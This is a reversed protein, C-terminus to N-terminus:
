TLTMQGFVYTAVAVVPAASVVAVLRRDEPLVLFLPVIIVLVLGFAIGGYVDGHLGPPSPCRGGFADCAGIAMTVGVLVLGVLVAAVAAIWRGARRM